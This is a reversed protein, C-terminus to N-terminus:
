LPEGRMLRPLDGVLGMAHRMFFRKAPPLREVLALGVNRALKLPLLDNAFLRNIGDTVAVLALSDFRRWAEYSELAAPEGPDLGLRLREVVTEAVAAVDRLALNWGQGSIPHIGRAADGVLAVRWDAYRESWVLVLPYYWRPGELRLKGLRDGFREAVEVAFADDDLVRMAAAREEELAWVISSRNGPMPLVAFPGDPFFREVAVGRHPREHVLTCVIGTQGYDWRRAGIGLRARSESLRGECVALLPASLRRGSALRLRAAFEERRIEAVAEGDRLRVTALKRVRALLAARIHRNEVIWGLPEGDIEASDYRVEVPSDAEAVLIERIPEAHPAIGPWVGLAELLLKSGRAIATVRGDYPATLMRGYAEREVVLVEYGAGGVAAALALGTLGGGLVLLDGKEGIAETGNRSM